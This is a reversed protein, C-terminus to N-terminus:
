KTLCITHVRVKTPYTGFTRVTCITHVEGKEIMDNCLECDYEKRGKVEKKSPTNYVDSENLDGADPSTQVGEYQGIDNWYCEECRHHYESPSGEGSKWGVTNYWNLAEESNTRKSTTNNCGKKICSNNNMTHRM